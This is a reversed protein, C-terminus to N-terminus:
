ENQLLNMDICILALEIEVTRGGGVVRSTTVVRSELREVIVQSGCLLAQKMPTTGINLGVYM